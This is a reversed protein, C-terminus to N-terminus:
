RPCRRCTCATLELDWRKQTAIPNSDLGPPLNSTVFRNLSARKKRRTRGPTEPAISCSVPNLVPTQRTGSPAYSAAPSRNRSRSRTAVSTTLQLAYGLRNQDGRKDAVATHDADDLHFYRALQEASPDGGYRGYHERQAPSLFSVPM